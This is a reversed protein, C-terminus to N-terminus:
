LKEAEYLVIVGFMFRRASVKSFGKEELKKSFEDVKLFREASKTMYFDPYDKGFLIKGYFAVCSNMYFRWLGRVWRSPPETFDLFGIRGGKKVSRYVGSLIADLHETLNRLVFGSLVLDYPAEDLPLEEAKRRVFRVAAASQPDLKRLRRRAIELMAQSFDLGTVQGRGKLKRASGISLDGTGCGLDLVRMGESVGKLAEKRWLNDLGLSSLRNFLDYRRALRDFM